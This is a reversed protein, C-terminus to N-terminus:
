EEQLLFNAKQSIISRLHFSRVNFSLIKNLDPANNISFIRNTVIISLKRCHAHEEPFGFSDCTKVVSCHKDSQMANVNTEQTLMSPLLRAQIPVFGPGSHEHKTISPTSRSLDRLRPTTILTVFNLTKLRNV